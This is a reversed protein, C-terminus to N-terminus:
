ESFAPTDGILNLGFHVIVHCRIKVVPTEVQWEGAMATLVRDYRIGDYTEYRGSACYAKLWPIPVETYPCVFGDGIQSIGPNVPWGKVVKIEDVVYTIRALDRGHCWAVLRTKEEFVEAAMDNGPYAPGFLVALILSLM